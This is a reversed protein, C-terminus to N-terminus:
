LRQINVTLSDTLNVQKLRYTVEINYGDTNAMPAVSVRLVTVRPEFRGISGEIAEKIDTSTQGDMPEFLFRRLDCGFDPEFLRDGKATELITLLAQKVAIANEVVQVDGSQTLKPQYALDRYITNIEIVM